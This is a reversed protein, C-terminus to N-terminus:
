GKIALVTLHLLGTSMRHCSIHVIQNYQQAPIYLYNLLFESLPMKSTLSTKQCLLVIGTMEELGATSVSSAQQPANAHTLLQKVIHASATHIYTNFVLCM